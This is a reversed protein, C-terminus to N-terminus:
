GKKTIKEIPLKVVFVTINEFFGDKLTISGGLKEVVERVYPLGMGTSPKGTNDYKTTYGPEFILFQKQELIGPGNDSVTFEIMEQNISATIHIYGQEKISEVANSVLNNILSLLIYVHFLMNTEDFHMTFHINKGLSLAYKRHTEIIINGIDILGMYDETNEKSILKSIGAYIRQNDKKIEHIQGAIGLIKEAIFSMSLGAVNHQVKKYLDYCDRTIDEAHQLSKKLQITEEYLSSILLLMHQNQEKQQESERRAQRLQIIYFFALAFFSRIIAILIVQYIIIYTLQEGLIYYRSTLEIFSSISEIVVCLIGVVLPQHYQNKVRFLLFLLSYTLYFFLASLHILYDHSLMINGKTYVDLLVRFTLVAFGVAFGVFVAPIRRIWLLLFLFTPIGFSIRFTDHFPHIKLEGTLPVTCIMLALLLLDERLDM